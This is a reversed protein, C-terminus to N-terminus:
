FQSKQQGRHQVLGAEKLGVGDCFVGTDIMTSGLAYRSAAQLAAEAESGQM